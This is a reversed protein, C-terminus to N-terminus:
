SEPGTITVYLLALRVDGASFSGGASTLVVDTAAKYFTPATINFDSGSTVTNIAPLIGAGWADVDTEDGISFSSSTGIATTVRVTVGFVYSGAPIFNAATVTAGSMASLVVEKCLIALSSGNVTSVEIEGDDAADGANVGGAITAEGTIVATGGVALTGVINANTAGPDADAGVNLGGNIALKAAAGTTGIGVTGGNPQLNIASSAKTGHTTGQITLDDNAGAGGAIGNTFVQAQSTAGTTAGTILLAGSLSELYTGSHNHDSPSLGFTDAISEYLVEEFGNSTNSRIPISNAMWTMATLDVIDTVVASDPELFRSWRNLFGDYIWKFDTDPDTWPTERYSTFPTPFTM